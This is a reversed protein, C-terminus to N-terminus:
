ARSACQVAGDANRRRTELSETTGNGEHAGTIPVVYFGYDWPINDPFTRTTWDVDVVGHTPAWCGMPDNSCNSDTGNATTADQNPIFMVNDAFAQNVDDYICHAATLILSSDGDGDQVATGSCVYGAPVGTDPNVMEFYLRGTSIAVQGAGTWHESSITTPKSGGGGPKGAPQPTAAQRKRPGAM